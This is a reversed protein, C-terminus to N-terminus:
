PIIVGVGRFDIYIVSVGGRIKFIVSVNRLNEYFLRVCGKRNLPTLKGNIQKKGKMRLKM